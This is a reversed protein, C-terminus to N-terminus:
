FFNVLVYLLMGGGIAVVALAALFWTFAAGLGRAPESKQGAKPAAYPNPEMGQNYGAREGLPQSFQRPGTAPRRVLSAPLMSPPAIIRNRCILSLVIRHIM